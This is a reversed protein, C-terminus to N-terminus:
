KKGYIRLYEERPIAIVSTKGYFLETNKNTYANPDSLLAMHMLPGQEPNM